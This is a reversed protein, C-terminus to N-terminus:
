PTARARGVGVGGTRVRGYITLLTGFLGGAAQVLQVVQEGLQRALDATVDVGILPGVAPLVTSVATIIAGWITMSHGWWKTDTPVSPRPLESPGPSSQPMDVGENGAPPLDGALNQSFALTRDVRALWGRGFRWFHQLGEM